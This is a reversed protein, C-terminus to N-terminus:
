VRSEQDIDGARSIKELLVLMIGLIFGLPILTYNSYIPFVLSCFIFWILLFAIMSQLLISQNNGVTKVAKKIAASFVLALGGFILVFGAIGNEYLVELFFNHPFDLHSYQPVSYKPFSILSSGLGNGLIWAILSNGKLMQWSDAWIQAREEKLLNLALVRVRTGIGEYDTVYIVASILFISGIGLWRHWGRTLFIFVFLAGCIIALFAPRSGTRLLLYFDLIGVAIFILKYWGNIVLFLYVILPLALVAFNALFHPNRYTGFPMHYLYHAAFQWCVALALIGGFLLKVRDEIEKQSLCHIAFVIIVMRVLRKIYRLNSHAYPNLVSALVLYACIAAFVLYWRPIKKIRYNGLLLEIVLLIGTLNLFFNAGSGRAFFCFFVGSLSLLLWYESTLIAKLTEFKSRHVL